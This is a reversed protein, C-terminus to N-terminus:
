FLVFPSVAFEVLFFIYVSIKRLFNIKLFCNKSLILSCINIATYHSMSERNVKHVAALSSSKGQTFKISPFNDLNHTNSSSFCFSTILGLSEPNKSKLFNCRGLFITINDYRCSQKSYMTFFSFLLKLTYRALFKLFLITLVSTIKLNPNHKIKTSQLHTSNPAYQVTLPQDSFIYLRCHKLSKQLPM